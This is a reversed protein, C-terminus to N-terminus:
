PAHRAPCTSAIAGRAPPSESQARIHNCHSGLALSNVCCYLIRRISTRKVRIATGGCEAGFARTPLEMVTVATGHVCRANASVIDGRSVHARSKGKVDVDDWSQLRAGGHRPTGVSPLTCNLVTVVRPRAAPLDAVLDRHTSYACHRAAACPCLM